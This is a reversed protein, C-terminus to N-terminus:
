LWTMHGTEYAHTLHRHYPFIRIQYSLRGCWSPTFELCFRQEGNVPEGEPQLRFSTVADPEQKRLRSLAVEGTTFGGQQLRLATDDQGLLLEVAVDGPTLGNLQAAVEIKFQGGYEIHGLPSDLRRLAVRPWAAQVRSKWTALTRPADYNDQAFLAHQRAAPAYFGTAYERLMRETNFRPLTSAISEKCLKVWAPSYGQQNHAYYLPLIQDQLIEYLTRADEHDRRGADNTHPSPKIGWGNAGNFGEAWWGDLVSLNPTGNIGAKMGSTGSAEQPYVPTNLWVDVGAVLRRALGIDYGEVLLVKGTFEPRMSIQHIARIMEQGPQDAPHAKGAFVFVVPRQPDSLLQRLWDLDNFLLTARKYTAFRRAFGVTLVNPHAPDLWRFMRDLHAPSLQNRLHQQRLAERLSYLMVSKLSQKVSWFVHDPIDHVKRWYAEDCVNNRWGAGLNRDFLTVWDKALVSPVHVGNTVHRMPNEEAPVGPWCQQCIRSSVEGHIRSVGNQQRSGRVALATMNFDPGQGPMQGLGLFQDMNLGLGPAYAGFYHRMMDPSFHDHGAPVPTHTTFVTSAAVTELAADFSLGFQMRERARELVLFAAHGENVHWVAPKIGLARLARVGGLGLVMEQRIRMDTGGGYLVHTIERDDESNEPLNTDLLYLRSRGVCAHWVQIHLTRGPIDVSVRLPGGDAAAVPRVPLDDFDSDHYHAVQRGEGDMTQIFYGQRYLLGVAIFPLALDSATKCHDGALIGLGGSYIPFSEHFGYEACFYAITDNAGLLPSSGAPSGHYTDYVSLVRNYNAMYVPDESAEILRSEDVSNLFVKPNHGCQKWLEPDLPGFLERTSRDWAYWLNQALEPLRSLAPPIRPSVELRFRQGQNM